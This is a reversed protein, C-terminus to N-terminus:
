NSISTCRVVKALQGTEECIVRTGGNLRSLFSRCCSKIEETILVKDLDCMSKSSLNQLLSQLEVSNEVINNNNNNVNFIIAEQRGYM